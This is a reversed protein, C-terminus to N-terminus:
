KVANNASMKQSYYLLIDGCWSIKYLIRSGDWKNDNEQCSKRFNDLISTLFDKLNKLHPECYFTYAIFCQVSLHSSSVWKQDCYFHGNKYIVWFRNFHSLFSIFRVYNSINKQLNQYKNCKELKLISWTIVM